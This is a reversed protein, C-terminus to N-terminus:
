KAAPPPYYPLKGQEDTARLLEGEATGVGVTFIKIGAKAAEHVNDDFPFFADSALVGGATPLGANAAKQCALRVADVRSMQGAGLGITAEERALVIANSKVHKCVRFAFLLDARETDTPARRTM